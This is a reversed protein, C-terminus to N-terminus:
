QTISVGSTSPAFVGQNIPASIGKTDKNRSSCFENFKEKMKIAYQCTYDDQIAKIEDFDKGTLTALFDPMDSYKVDAETNSKLLSSLADYIHKKGYINKGLVKLRSLIAEGTETDIDLTYEGDFLLKNLKSKRLTNGNMCPRIVSSISMELDKAKSFIWNLKEDKKALSVIKTREEISYGKGLISNMSQFRYFEDETEFEKIKVNNICPKDENESLKSYLFAFSPSLFYNDSDELVVYANDPISLVEKGESDIFVTGKKFISVKVILVPKDENFAGSKILEAGMKVESSTVKKSTSKVRYIEIEKIEKKISVSNGNLVESVLSVIFSNM